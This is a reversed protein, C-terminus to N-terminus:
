FEPGPREQQAEFLVAAVEHVGEEEAAESIEEWSANRDIARATKSNNPLDARFARIQDAVRQQLNAPSDGPAQLEEEQVEFLIAALQHLGEEEACESIEALAAGHDIAQATKSEAPLDRRFSALVNYIENQEM